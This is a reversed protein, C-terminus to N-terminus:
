ASAVPAYPLVVGIRWTGGAAASAYSMAKTVGKAVACQRLEASVISVHCSADCAMDVGDTLSLRVPLYLSRSCCM